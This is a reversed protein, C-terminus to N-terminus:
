GRLERDGSCRCGAVRSTACGRGSGEWVRVTRSVSANRGCVDLPWLGAIDPPMVSATAKSIHWERGCRTRTGSRRRARTCSRIESGLGQVRTCGNADRPRVQDKDREEEEEKDFLEPAEEGGGGPGSSLRWM